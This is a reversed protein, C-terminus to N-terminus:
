CVTDITKVLSECNQEHVVKGEYSPNEKSVPCDQDKKCCYYDIKEAYVCELERNKYVSCYRKGKLNFVGSKGKFETLLSKGYRLLNTWGSVEAEGTTTCKDCQGIYKKM